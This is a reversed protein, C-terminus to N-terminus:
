KNKRVKGIPYKWGSKQFRSENLRLWKNYEEDYPRIPRQENEYCWTFYQEISYRKEYKGTHDKDKGYTYDLFFNNMVNCRSEALSARDTWLYLLKNRSQFEEETRGGLLKILRNFM